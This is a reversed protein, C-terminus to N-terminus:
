TRDTWSWRRRGAHHGSYSGFTVVHNCNRMEGPCRSPTSDAELPGKVEIVCIENFTQFQGLSPKEGYPDRLQQYLLFTEKSGILEPVPERATERPSAAETSRAPAPQFSTDLHSLQQWSRLAFTDGAIRHAAGEVV